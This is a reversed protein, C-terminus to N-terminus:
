TDMPPEALFGALAAEESIEMAIKRCTEGLEAIRDEMRFAPGSISIAGLLEGNRGTLAAGVSLANILAISYGRERIKVLDALLDAPGSFELGLIDPSFELRAILGELIEVPLVALMAKGLATTHLPMVQGIASVLRISQSSELKDVYRVEDHDLCGLHVSEGSLNRLKILHPRVFSRLDMEWTLGATLKLMKRTMVYTKQVPNQELYGADCLTRALRITTTKDLGCQQALLTPGLGMRPGAALAELISLGRLLTQTAKM